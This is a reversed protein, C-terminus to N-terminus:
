LLRGSAQQFLYASVIIFCDRNPFLFIEKVLINSSSFKIFKTACVNKNNKLNINITFNNTLFIFM